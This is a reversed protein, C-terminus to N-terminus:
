PHQRCFVDRIWCLSSSLWMKRKLTNKKKERLGGDPTRLHMAVVAAVAAGLCRSQLAVRYRPHAARRGRQKVITARKLWQKKKEHPPKLDCVHEELKLILNLNM